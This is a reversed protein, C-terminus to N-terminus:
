VKRRPLGGRPHVAAKFGIHRRLEWVDGRSACDGLTLVRYARVQDPLGRVALWARIENAHTALGPCRALADALAERVDLDHNVTVNM